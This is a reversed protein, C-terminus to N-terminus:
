RPLINCFSQWDSILAAALQRTQDDSDTFYIIEDYKM